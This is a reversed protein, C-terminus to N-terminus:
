LPPSTRPRHRSVADTRDSPKTGALAGSFRFQNRPLDREGRQAAVAHIHENNEMVIAVTDGTRLDIRWFYRALQNARAELEGFGVETGSRYLVIAPKALAQHDRIQM